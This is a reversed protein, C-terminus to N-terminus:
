SVAATGLEQGYQVFTEVDKISNAVLDKAFKIKNKQFICVM